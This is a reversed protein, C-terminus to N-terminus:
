EWGDIDGDYLPHAKLDDQAMKLAEEASDAPIEWTRSAYVKITFTKKKQSEFYDFFKDLTDDDMNELPCILGLGFNDERDQTVYVKGNNNMYIETLNGGDEFWNGADDKIGKCSFTGDLQLVLNGVGSGIRDLYRQIKGIKQNHRAYVIIRDLEDNEIFDDTNDHLVEEESNRFILSGDKFIIQDLYCDEHHYTTGDEFHAVGTFKFEGGFYLVGHNEECMEKLEDLISIRREKRIYYEVEKRMALLSDITFNTKGSFEEKDDDGAVWHLEAMLKDDEVHLTRVEASPNYNYDVYALRFDRSPEFVMLKNGESKLLSIIDALINEKFEALRASQDKEDGIVYAVWNVSTPIEENNYLNVFEKESNVFFGFKRCQDKENAYKLVEADTLSKWDKDSPLIHTDLFVIQKM